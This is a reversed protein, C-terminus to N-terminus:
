YIRKNYFIAIVAVFSIPMIFHSMSANDTESQEITSSSESQETTDFNIIELFKSEFATRNADIAAQVNTIESDVPIVEGEHNQEDIIVELFYDDLTVVDPDTLAVVTLIDWFYLNTDLFQYVIEEEKSNKQDGLKDKFEQTIPVQNTADLPVLLIPIESHFVIDVAHPDIYFNWEAEYNDIESEIGVNGPVDIAGGMINILEINNKISPDAELAIAVNTLPGLAVITVKKASSSVISIILESANMDSVKQDTEPLELGYFNNSGERWATPFTHNTYMPSEKGAAVPINEHGLYDLLKVYNEAGEQVYGVGCSLSLGVVSYAPHNLLYLIAYVDDPAGDSDIIVPIVQEQLHIGNIPTILGCTTISYLVILFSLINTNTKM